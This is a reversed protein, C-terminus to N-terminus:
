PTVGCHSPPSQLPRHHPSLQRQLAVRALDRDYFTLRSHCWVLLLMAMVSRVKSFSPCSRYGACPRPSCRRAQRDDCRDVDDNRIASRENRPRTIRGPLPAGEVLAPLAPLLLDLSHLVAPDSPPASSPIGRQALSRPSTVPSLFCPYPKM